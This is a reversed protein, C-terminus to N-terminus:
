TCLGEMRGLLSSETDGERLIPGEVGVGEQWEQAVAAEVEVVACAAGASEGPEGGGRALAHLAAAGGAGAARLPLPDGALHRGSDGSAFRM